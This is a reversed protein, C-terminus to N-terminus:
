ALKVAGGNVDFSEVWFSVEVNWCCGRRRRERRVVGCFGAGRCELLVEQGGHADLFEGLSYLSAYVIFDSHVV